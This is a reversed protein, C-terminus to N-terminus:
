QAIPFRKYLLGRRDLYYSLAVSSIYISCHYAAVCPLIIHSSDTLMVTSPKTHSLESPGNHEGWVSGPQKGPAVSPSPPLPAYAQVSPSLNPWGGGIVRQILLVLYVSHICTFLGGIGVVMALSQLFVAATKGM